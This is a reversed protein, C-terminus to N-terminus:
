HAQLLWCSDDKPRGQLHDKLILLDPTHSPSLLGPGTSPVEEKMLSTLCNGERLIRVPAGTGRGVWLARDDQSEKRMWLVGEDQSGKRMWLAGEDHSGKGM